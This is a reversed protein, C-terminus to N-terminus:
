GWRRAARDLALLAVLGLGLMVPFPVTLEVHGLLVALVLGPLLGAALALLRSRVLRREGARDGAPVGDSTLRTLDWAVVSAAVAAVGLWGPGGALVSLAALAVSGFLCAGAAPFARALVTLWLLAWAGAGAMGGPRGALAFAALTLAQSAVVAVAAALHRLAPRLTM